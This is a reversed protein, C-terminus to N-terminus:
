GGFLRRLVDSTTTGRRLPEYEEPGVLGREPHVLYATGRLDDLVALPVDAAVARAVAVVTTWEETGGAPGAFSCTLGYRAPIGLLQRASETVREPLDDPDAAAAQIVGRGDHSIRLPEEGFTAYGSRALRRRLRRRSIRRGALVTVTTM